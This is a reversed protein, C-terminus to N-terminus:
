PVKVIDVFRQCPLDIFKLYSHGLFHYVWMMSPRMKCLIRTISTAHCAHCDFLDNINRRYKKCVMQEVEDLYNVLGKQNSSIKSRFFRPKYFFVVYYGAM